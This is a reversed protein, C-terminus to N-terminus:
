ALLQCHTLWYATHPRMWAALWQRHGTKVDECQAATGQAADQATTSSHRRKLSWSSFGCRARCPM